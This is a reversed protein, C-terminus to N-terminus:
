VLCNVGSTLAKERVFHGIGSATIYVFLLGFQIVSHRFLFPAYLGTCVYLLINNGAYQVGGGM